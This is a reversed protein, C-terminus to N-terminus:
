ALETALRGLTIVAREVESSWPRACSLRVFNQYKGRASFLPGPAISIKEALAREYLVLSDVRKPMEVWLLFGGQPRSLRTGHPFALSVAHSMDRVQEAYAKRVQRLHKDYGGDNLFAALALQPLPALAMTTVLQTRIVAGEYRGPSVWGIRLGPSLTKSVSSCYLVNGTRDFAKAPRPRTNSHYLEGNLDDEILPVGAAELLEVLERKHSDPMCAGLPNNFNTVAIVAAIRQNELAFRLAELSMGDRSDTPIELARMDLSEILQLVGYYAPSEIAITDGAKAVARLSMHLAEQCGNTIVIEGPGMRCGAQAMRVALHRRLAADGPPFAYGMAKRSQKRTIGALTRMVDRVPLLEPDPVAAGLPMIGEVQSERVLRFALEGTTVQCPRALPKSIAPERALAQMRRKVFYGSRPRAEALGRDELLRFAHVATALSVNEQRCVARVSPLRQGPRLTGNEIMAALRDAVRLYLTDSYEQQLPAQNM